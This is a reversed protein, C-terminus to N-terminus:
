KSSEEIIGKMFDENDLLIERCEKIIQLRKENEEIKKNYDDFCKRKEIYEKASIKNLDDNLINYSNNIEKDLYIQEENLSKIKNAFEKIIEKYM